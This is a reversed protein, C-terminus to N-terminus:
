TSEKKNKKIENNTKFNKPITFTFTTGKGIKSTFSIDGGHLNVIRKTLALGLGSGPKS